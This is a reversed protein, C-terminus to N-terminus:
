EVTLAVLFPASGAMASVYDITAIVKGPQPNEFTTRCLRVGFGRRSTAPSEGTWAVVTNTDTPTAPRWAWFDLVNERHRIDLRAQEGDAYRLVLSAVTTGPPDGFGSNAHLIHVRRCARHVPIGEAREPLDYGRKVWCQGQLQILGQVDFSVGGLEQRGTPLSALNNGPDENPLWSTQLPGNTQQSLSVPIFRTGHGGIPAFRLLWLVIIGNLLVLGGLALGIRKARSM